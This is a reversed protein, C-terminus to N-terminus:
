SRYKKGKRGQKAAAIRQEQQKGVVAVARFSAVVEEFSASVGRAAADDEMADRTLHLIQQSSASPSPRHPSDRRPGDLRLQSINEEAFPWHESLYSSDVVDDTNPPRQFGQPIIEELLTWRGHISQQPQTNAIKLPPETIPPLLLTTLWLMIMFSTLWLRSTRNPTTTILVSDTLTRSIMAM